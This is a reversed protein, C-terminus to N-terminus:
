KVQLGAKRLGELLHEVLEDEKVFRSILYRAKSEFEPKLQLLNVINPKADDMRNLQGLAAVRLMPGWFLSPILYKEAELLSKKYAKKRYYYLMTPGLLFLPYKINSRMVQDLISKGREWEGYFSLYMGLAGLRYSNNLDKKLCTEVENFFRGKDNNAFHKMVCVIKITLSNADLDVAREALENMRQYAKDAEGADLMYRNFYMGSLLATAMGSDPEITIAKELATFAEFAAEPTHVAQFYHFKLIAFYTDTKKPKIQNAELSLRHMIIGYESGLVSAVEQAINGQIDILDKSNYDVIYRKAWIQLHNSLDTLRILVKVQKDGANVGGEVIFRIGKNLICKYKDSDANSMGLLSMSHFVLLEEFKTLEVSLEESFGLSFYNKAPDGSLNEFPLIAVTPKFVEKSSSSTSFVDEEPRINSLFNPVYKGKPIEIRIPDNIGKQLYYLKLMRRLRGAHIRVIPNIEPDFDKPKNFVDVGINYGKINKERGSLSEEVLYRLLKCLQQKSKLESSLCIKDVLKLAEKAPVKLSSNM